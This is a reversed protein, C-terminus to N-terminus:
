TSNLVSQSWVQQFVNPSGMVAVPVVAEAESEM